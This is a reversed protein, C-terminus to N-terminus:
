ASVRALADRIASEALDLKYAAPESIPWSRAFRRWTPEWARGAEIAAAVPALDLPQGALGGVVIRVHEASRRVVVEVLPWEARSRGAIRLWTSREPPTPPLEVAVLLAGAPLTHDRTPDAGDYLAAVPGAPGRHVRTTADYAVLVMGLTSPQVCLCPSMEVAALHIRDGGRAACVGGGKKFCVVSGDRYYSCRTHQLLAGGLTAVARIQPTALHGAAECLAAYRARLEPHAALTDLRVGAGLVAGEGLDISDLGRLDRLDTLPGGSIGRKRRDGLDTGGARIEGDGVDELRTPFQIM